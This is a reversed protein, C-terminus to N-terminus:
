GKLFAGSSDPAETPVVRAFPAFVAKIYRDREAEWLALDEAPPVFTEIEEVSAIGKTELLKETTLTRRKLTWVQASLEMVTSVLNDLVVNELFVFKEPHARIAEPLIPTEPDANTTM